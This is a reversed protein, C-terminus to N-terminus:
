SAAAERRRVRAPAWHWAVAWGLAIGALDALADWVDGSRSRLLLGQVLESAVAQVVLLSALVPGPIGAIVGSAMVLAFMGVHGLKDTGPFDGSDPAVPSYLGWLQIGIALALVIWAVVRRLRGRAAPDPGARM